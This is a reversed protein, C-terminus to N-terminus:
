GTGGKLKRGEENVCIATSKLQLQEVSIWANFDHICHPTIYVPRGGM